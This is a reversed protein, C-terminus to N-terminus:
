GLALERRLALIGIAYTALAAIMVVDFGTVMAVMVALITGIVTACGNIAWAWPVLRVDVHEVARIGLPFFMGLLVGLPAILLMAVVIRAALASRLFADFVVPFGVLLAATYVALAAGLVTLTRGLPPRLFGSCASGIGTYTLLSFLVVSLSYTPFGLFLVFRQMLSIEILIFGMGLAAFYVVVGLPARLRPGGARGRLLPLLIMVISIVIAQVLMVLLMRQGTSPTTGPDEPARRILSRWKYFNFFFPSQDTAAQLRLYHGALYAEREAASMWLYRSVAQDGPRDPRHWFLFGERDAFSQLRALEEATYPELKVLTVVLPVAENSALIAINAKPDEVGLGQLAARLTEAFRQIICTPGALGNNDFAFLAYVGGPSLHQLYRQFAQTTYLYSEALVYAGSSLASLTDIGNLVILDFREDSSEVWHRAEAAVVRVHDFVGGNFDRFDQTDLRVTVPNLELGTIPGAGNAIGALADAGGGLGIILMKPHPTLVYPAALVHHRFVELTRPDGDYRYTVALSGGDYGIMRFEPRTGEFKASVGSVAYSARPSVHPPMWGVADVRNLPTWQTYLLHAGPLAMLLDLFQGTSPPFPAALLVWASVATMAVASTAPIMPTRRETALIAATAWLAFAGLIVVAPTQLWWILPVSVACALGAGILDCAYLRGVRDPRAALVTAVAIGAFFFPITVAVYYLALMALAGPNSGIKVTDFRVVASFALTLLVAVGACASARVLRTRVDRRLGPFATLWSGASGFGLLATAITLYAFHYSLGYSFIRTFAIEVTLTGFSLLFIAVSLLALSPVDSRDPARPAPM